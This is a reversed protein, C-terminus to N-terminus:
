ILDGYNQTTKGEVTISDIYAQIVSNPVGDVWAPVNSAFITVALVECWPTLIGQGVSQDLPEWIHGDADPTLFDLFHNLTNLAIPNQATCDAQLKSVPYFQLQSM